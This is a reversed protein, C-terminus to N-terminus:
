SGSAIVESEIVARLRAVDREFMGQVNRRLLGELPRVWVPLEAENSLTLKVGGPGPELDYRMRSPGRSLRSTIDYGYRRPPDFATVVATTPIQMGLWRGLHEMRSGLGIPGDATRRTWIAGEQWRPGNEPATIYAWVQEESARIHTWAAVRM